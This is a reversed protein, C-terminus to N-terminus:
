QLLRLPWFQALSVFYKSSYNIMIEVRMNCIFTRAIPFLYEITVTHSQVSRSGPRNEGGCAEMGKRRGRERKGRSFLDRQGPAYRSFRSPIRMYQDDAM